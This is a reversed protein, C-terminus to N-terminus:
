SKAKLVAILLAIIVFGLMVWPLAKRDKNVRDLFRKWMKDRMVSYEELALRQADLTKNFQEFGVELQIKDKSSLREGAAFKKMMDDTKMESVTVANAESFLQELKRSEDLTAFEEYDVVPTGCHATSIKKIATVITPVPIALHGASWRVVNAKRLRMITLTLHGASFLRSASPWVYAVVNPEFEMVLYYAAVGRNDQSRHATRTVGHWPMMPLGAIHMGQSDVKLAYGHMLAALLSGIWSWTALLLVVSFFALLGFGFIGERTKEPHGYISILWVILLTSVGALTLCVFISKLWRQPVILSHGSWQGQQAFLAAEDQHKKKEQPEKLKAGYWAWICLVTVTFGACLLSKYESDPILKLSVWVSFIFLIVGLLLYAAKKM